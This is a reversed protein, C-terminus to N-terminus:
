RADPLSLALIFLLACITIPLVLEIGRKVQSQSYRALIFISASLSIIISGTRVAGSVGIVVGILVAILSFRRIQDLTFSERM